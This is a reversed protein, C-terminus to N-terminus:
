DFTFRAGVKYGGVTGTSHQIVVPVWADEGDSRIEVTRGRQLDMKCTFGIGQLCINRGRANIIQGDVRVELPESFPTYRGLRRKGLYEDPEVTGEGQASRIWDMVVRQIRAKTEPM